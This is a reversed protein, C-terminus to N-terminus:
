VKKGTRKYYNSSSLYIDEGKIVAHLTTPSDSGAFSMADGLANIQKKNLVMEGSNLRALIKDGTFSHGGVIGGTSFPLMKRATLVLLVTNIATLVGMVASVVASIKSIVKGAGELGFENLLGGISGLANNIASVKDGLTYDSKSPTGFDGKLNQKTFEQLAKTVDAFPDVKSLSQTGKKQLDQAQLSSFGKLGVGMDNYMGAMYEQRNNYYRLGADDMNSLIKKLGQLHDNLADWEPSGQVYGSMVRELARVQEDILERNSLDTIFQAIETRDYGLSELTHKLDKYPDNQIVVNVPKNTTTSSYGKASPAPTYRKGGGGRGGKGGGTTTATTTTTTTTSTRGYNPDYWDYKHLNHEKIKDITASETAMLAALRAADSGMKGPSTALGALEKESKSPFIKRLRALVAKKEERTGELLHELRTKEDNYAAKRADRDPMGSGKFTEYRQQTVPDIYARVKEQALARLKNILVDTTAIADALKDLLKALWGIVVAIVGTSNSFATSLNIWSSNLKHAQGDVTEMEKACNEEAQTTGKLQDEFNAADKQTEVLAEGMAYARNGLVEMYEKTTTCKKGLNEIAKDIGVIRPNLDDGAKQLKGLVMEFQAAAKGADPFRPAIAEIYGLLKEFPIGAQNASNGVKEVIQTLYEVSGGGAKAAAALANTYRMASEASVGYVNFINVLKQTSDELTMHASTALVAAARATEGLGQWNDRLEPMGAAIAQMSQMIETASAMTQTSLEQAKVKLMDLEQTTFKCQNGLKVLEKEWEMSVQLGDSFAKGVLGVAGAVGIMGASLGSFVGGLGSFSGMLSKGMGGMQAKFRKAQGSSMNLKRTFDSSDLKLRTLINNAM